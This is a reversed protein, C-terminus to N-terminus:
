FFQRRVERDKRTFQFIVTVLFRLGLKVYHSCKWTQWNCLLCVAENCIWERQIVFNQGAVQKQRAPSKKMTTKKLKMCVLNRWKILQTLSRELFKFRSTVAVTTFIHPCKLINLLAIHPSRVSQDSCCGPNICPYIGGMARQEVGLSQSSCVSTESGWQQHGHTNTEGPAHWMQTNVDERVERLVCVYAPTINACTNAHKNKYMRPGLCQYNM